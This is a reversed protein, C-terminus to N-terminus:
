PGPGDCQTRYKNAAIDRFSYRGQENAITQQSYASGILSVFAGPVVSRGGDSDVTYVLGEIEGDKADQAAALRPAIIASVLVLVRITSIFQHKM